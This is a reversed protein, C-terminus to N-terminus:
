WIVSIRKSAIQVGNNLRVIYTGRSLLQKSVTVKGNAKKLANTLDAVMRGKMDFVKLSLAKHM